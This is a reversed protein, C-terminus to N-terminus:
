FARSNSAGREREEFALTQLRPPEAYVCCASVHVSNRRSEVLMAECARLYQKHVTFPRNRWVAAVLLQWSELIARAGRLRM